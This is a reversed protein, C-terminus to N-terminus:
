STRRARLCTRFRCLSAGPFRRDLAGLLPYPSPTFFLDEVAFGAGTVAEVVRASPRVAIHDAQQLAPLAAKVREAWHDRNPTYLAVAGGPVLLRRAEALSASLVDDLVHEVFDALLVVDFSGDAFLPISRADALEFRVNGVGRSLAEERAAMVAAPAADVGAVSAVRPAFFFSTDGRASGVELLRMSARPRVLRVLAEDRDRYKRENRFFWHRRYMSAYYAEDYVSANPAFDAGKAPAPDTTM